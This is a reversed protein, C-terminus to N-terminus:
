GESTESAPSCVLFGTGLPIELEPGFQVPKKRIRNISETAVDSVLREIHLVLITPLAKLHVQQTAENSSSQVVKTSRPQSVRTLADEITHVSDPQTFPKSTLRHPRFPSFSSFRVQINLQLTQWAEITVADPQSPVRVTKRSRGSFIRSISTVLSAQEYGDM